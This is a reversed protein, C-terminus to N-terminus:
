DEENGAELEEITSPGMNVVTNFYDELRSIAILEEMVDSRLGNAKIHPTALLSVQDVAHDRLYGQLILLQFDKNDRLRLYATKLDAFTVNSVTLLEQDKTELNNM